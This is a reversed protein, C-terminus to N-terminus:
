RQDIVLNTMRCVACTEGADNRVTLNWVHMTRGLHVPEATATIMGERVGKVHNANVEIGVIGKVSSDILLYSAMSALSEALAATAGGHLLGMPQKNRQDVPLTALLRGLEDVMFCIGLTSELTGTCLDNAKRVHEATFIM